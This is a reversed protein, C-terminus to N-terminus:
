TILSVAPSRPRRRPPRRPDPDREVRRSIRRTRGRPVRARAECARPRARARCALRPRVSAEASFGRRAPLVEYATSRPPSACRRGPTARTAARSWCRSCPRRRRLPRHARRHPRVREARLSGEAFARPDFDLPCGKALVDAAHPGASPGRSAAPPSTSCRAAPPTSRTAGPRTSTTLARPTAGRRAAVIAPGLWLATLLTAASSDHQARAAADVDFADRVAAVFDPGRRTARCTGRRRSPRSRRADRRDGRAGYHGPVAAGIAFATSTLWAAAGRRSRHLM